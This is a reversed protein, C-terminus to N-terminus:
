AWDFCVAADDDAAGFKVDALGQVAPPQAGLWGVHRLYWKGPVPNGPSDPPYFSASRKSYRGAKLGQAFAADVRDVRMMLRGDPTATLGKVWGYAPKDSSPHGLTLPAEHRTPNYAVAMAQVDQATFTRATGASDTHTGVRFIEISQGQLAEVADNTVGTDQVSNSESFCCSDSHAAVRGIAESYSVGHEASLRVARAHLDLDGSEAFSATPKADLGAFVAVRGIAESYSVGRKASLRVARAHLSLDGAEAFSAASPADLEVLVAVRGIAESYSVGHEASYRVARADIECDSLSHKTM